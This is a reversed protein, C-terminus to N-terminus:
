LWDFTSVAASPVSEFENFSKTQRREKGHECPHSHFGCQYIARGMQRAGRHANVAFPLSGAARLTVM